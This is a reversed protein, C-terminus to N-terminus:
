NQLFSTFFATEEAEGFRGPVLPTDGAGVCQKAFLRDNVRAAECNTRSKLVRQTAPHLLNERGGAGGM